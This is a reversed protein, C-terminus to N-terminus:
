SVATELPRRIVEVAAQGIAEARKTDLCADIAEAHVLHLGKRSHGLSDFAGAKILSEVTKKNVAVAEVKKLYDPFDVFRGKATRTFPNAPEVFLGTIPAVM